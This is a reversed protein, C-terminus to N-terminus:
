TGRIRTIIRAVLPQFHRFVFPGVITVDRVAFALVLYQDYDSIEM